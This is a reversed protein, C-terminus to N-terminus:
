PSSESALIKRGLDQGNLELVSRTPTPVLSEPASWPASAAVSVTGDTGAVKLKIGDPPAEVQADAGAFQRRWQSFAEDTKLGSGARLWFAAGPNRGNFKPRGGPAAHEVALRVAGFPNGDYILFTQAERGDLGLSWPVRLGLAASGKRLTVVEGPKVPVRAPQNKSFEVRQEGIWFSGAALPMVFNSVLTTANAPVDKERYIVLGLADGNRQAATWFPDLHFAKQHAGASIKEQGYPDDRGDAIFYGRVSKRDGPFDVTLPMDMRGGYGAAACSLTIDPLLFHTRSQWWDEGWSQRVLRPFQDSM